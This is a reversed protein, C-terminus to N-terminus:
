KFNPDDENETVKNKLKKMKVVTGKPYPKSDTRM